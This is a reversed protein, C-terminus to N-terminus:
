PGKKVRRSRRLCSEAQVICASIVAKAALDPLEMKARWTDLHIQVDYWLYKRLQQIVIDANHFIHTNRLLRVDVNKLMLRLPLQYPVMTNKFHLKPPQRYPPITNDFHGVFSGAFLPPSFSVYYGVHCLAGCQQFLVRLM